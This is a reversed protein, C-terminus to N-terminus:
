SRAMLFDETPIMALVSTGGVKFKMMPVESLVVRAKGGRIIEKERPILVVNVTGSSGNAWKVHYSGGRVTHLGITVEFMGDIDRVVPPYFNKDYRPM